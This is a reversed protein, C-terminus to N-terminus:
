KPTSHWIVTSKSPYPLGPALGIFSLKTRYEELPKLYRRRNTNDFLILGDKDLHKISRELCKDRCRGDIVILDFKGFNDISEVYNRFGLTRNHKKRSSFIPDYETSPPIHILSCHTKPTIFENLETYFKFDHEVSTVSYGQNIMWVTSSGSGWEFVRVNEYDHYYAEIFRTVKYPWWPKGLRIM